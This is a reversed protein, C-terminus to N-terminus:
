PGAEEVRGRVVQLDGKRTLPLEGDPAFVARELVAVFEGESLPRLATRSLQAPDFRPKLEDGLRELLPAERAECGLGAGAGDALDRLQCFRGSLRVVGERIRAGLANQVSALGRRSVVLRARTPAVSLTLFEAYSRAGVLGSAVSFGESEDIEYDADGRLLVAAQGALRFQRPARAAYLGNVSATIARRNAGDLLTVARSSAHLTFLGEHVVGYLAISLCTLLATGPIFGLLSAPGFRRRVWFSGPGIVAVFALVILLFAGAPARAVALLPEFPSYGSRASPASVKAVREILKGEPRAGLRQLCSALPACRGVLGFGYPTDGQGLDAGALPLTLDPRSPASSLLLTGGSAAYAELARRQPEPLADLPTELLAVAAFGIYGSLQDPLEGKDLVLAPAKGPAAGEGEEAKRKELLPAGAAKGEVLLPGANSAHWSFNESGRARTGEVSARLGGYRVEPPLYLWVTQKERAALAVRRSVRTQGGQLELAVTRSVADLNDLHVALPLFGEQPAVDPDASASVRVPDSLLTAAGATSHPLPALCLAALGLLADRRRM